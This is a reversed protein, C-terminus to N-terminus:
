RIAHDHTFEHGVGKEAVVADDDDVFGV